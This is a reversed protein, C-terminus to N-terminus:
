PYWMNWKELKEKMNGKQIKAAGVSEWTCLRREFEAYQLHRQSLAEDFLLGTPPSQFM